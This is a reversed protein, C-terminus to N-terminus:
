RPCNTTKRVRAVIWREVLREPAFFSAFALGALPYPFVIAMTAVVGAHFGWAIASWTRALRQNLLAVPACLEFVLTIWALPPFLWAQAVLPGALPSAWSGLELKRVADYAIHARLEAGEAWSPGAIKLKAVGALLYTAVTVLSMAKVTWSYCGRREREKLYAVALPPGLSWRDAAPAVSLLLIHLVFLNETHFVMGWSNRYSTVWLLTVAFAPASWCYYRGMVAAAGCLISLAFVGYVAEQALPASLLGIVGVPDFSRADWREFNTLHSTRALLYVLAFGFTMIRLAALRTAPVEEFFWREFRCRSADRAAGSM